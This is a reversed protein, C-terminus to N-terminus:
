AEPDSEWIAAQVAGIIRHALIAAPAMGSEIAAIKDEVIRLCPACASIHRRIGMSEAVTTPFKEILIRCDACTM